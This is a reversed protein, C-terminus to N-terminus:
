VDIRDEFVYVLNLPTALNTVLKEYFRIAKDLDAFCDALEAKGNYDASNMKVTISYLPIRYSAVYQSEKVSLHYEYTAGDKERMDCRITKNEHCLKNNM